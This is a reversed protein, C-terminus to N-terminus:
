PQKRRGIIARIGREARPFFGTPDLLLNMWGATVCFGQSHDGQHHHSHAAPSLILNNRQLWRIIVNADDAHAWKHFQNTGFSALSLFILFSYSFLSLASEDPGGRLQAVALLPIAALCNNGNLELFSHRTMGRPDRHHERFPHILMRGIVPSDEEFFTDGFWHVLGSIFDAGLYGVILAPLIVWWTKSEFVTTATKIGLRLILAAFVIVSIFEFCVIWFPRHAKTSPSSSQFVVDALSAVESIRFPLFNPTWGQPQVIKL